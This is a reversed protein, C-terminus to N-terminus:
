WERSAAVRGHEASHDHKSSRCSAIHGRRGGESRNCTAHATGRYEDRTDGHALDWASGPEIWRTPELCIPETCYADGADVIPEWREREAQHHHDYGRQNASRRASMDGGKVHSHGAV